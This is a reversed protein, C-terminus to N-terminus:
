CFGSRVSQCAIREPERLSPTYRGVSECQRRHHDRQRPTLLITNFLGIEEVTGEIGGAPVYDGVRYPRFMILFVGAAFNALMGSWAAGIALGAGALLAAFSTTEVGFYGLIAVVLVVNLVAALINVVYRQLTADFSRATLVRSVLGVAIGILWRGIIYLIGAGVIRIGVTTIIPVATDWWGHIDM